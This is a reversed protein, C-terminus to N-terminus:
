VAIDQKAEIDKESPGIDEPHKGANRKEPDKL